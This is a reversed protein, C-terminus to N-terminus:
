AERMYDVAVRALDRAVRRLPKGDFSNIMAAVSVGHEPLYLMCAVSGISGGGHGYVEVGRIWGPLYHQVGLGYGQSMIGDKKSIAVFELMEGLQSESIIKGQFLADSWRALDEATAFVGGSPHVISDHAARPEFTLDRIEEGPLLTGWVHAM